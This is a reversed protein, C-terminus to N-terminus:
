YGEDLAPSFLCGDVANEQKVRGMDSIAIIRGNQSIFGDALWSLAQVKIRAELELVREILEVRSVDPLVPLAGQIIVPGHDIMGDVVHVTAGVLCVGYDLAADVPKRGDETRGIFAPLLSPHSNITMPFRGLFRASLLRSFSCSVVIDVRAATFANAIEDDFAERSQFHTHDLFLSPIGLSEVEAQFVSACRNGVVCAIEAGIKGERIAGIVRQANRGSRAALIGIRM